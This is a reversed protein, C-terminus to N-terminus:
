GPLTAHFAAMLRETLSQHQDRIDEDGLTKEPSRYTFRFSLSKKGAPIPEGSFVDFLHVSELLDAQLGVAADRVERAERDQDLILTIDRVLAPFRPIRLRYKTELLLAQLGDADLEFVFVPQKLEFADRVQPHLEGVIGIARDGALIRASHGPRTYLCEEVPMRTFRVTALKLAGLLGEVAGQIDYFDCPTEKGHWSLAVRAGTWLGAIIEPEEPLEANSPIFVKGAEFIKLSRVQQALNFRMTELLGPILSSRMVAQDETLPNLVAV